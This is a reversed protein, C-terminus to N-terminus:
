STRLLLRAEVQWKHNGIAFKRHHFGSQCEGM